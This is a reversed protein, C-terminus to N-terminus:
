LFTLIVGRDGPNQLKKKNSQRHAMKHDENKLIVGDFFNFFFLLFFDVLIFIM